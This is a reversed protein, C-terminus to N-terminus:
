HVHACISDQVKMNWEVERSLKVFLEEWLEGPTAMYNQLLGKVCTQQSGCSGEPPRHQGHGNKPWTLQQAHGNNQDYQILSRYLSCKFLTTSSCFSIHVFCKVVSSVYSLFLIFYLGVSLRVHLFFLVSSLSQFKNCGKHRRLCNCVAISCYKDVLTIRHCCV